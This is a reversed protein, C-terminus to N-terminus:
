HNVNESIFVKKITILIINLDMTLSCKELYEKDIKVKDEISLIDRGKIQALGTLGPVLTHM